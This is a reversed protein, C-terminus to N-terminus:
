DFFAYIVLIDLRGFETQIFYVLSTITNIDTVDVQHFVVNSLGLEHLKSTAEEGRGKDRATLVVMVKAAALQQVIEFGIGKNAGTVM